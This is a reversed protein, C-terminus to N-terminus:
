RRDDKVGLEDDLRIAKIIEDPDTIWGDTPWWFARKPHKNGPPFIRDKLAVLIGTEYKGIRM